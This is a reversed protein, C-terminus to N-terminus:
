DMPIEDPITMPREVRYTIVKHRRISFRKPFGLVNRTYRADLSLRKSQITLGSPQILRAAPSRQVTEELSLTVAEPPFSIGIAAASRLFEEKVGAATAMQPNEFLLDTAKELRAHDAEARIYGYGGFCASVALLLVLPRTWKLRM